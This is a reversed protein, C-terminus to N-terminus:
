DPDELNATSAEVFEVKYDTEETITVKFDPDVVLATQPNDFLEVKLGAEPSILVIFPQLVVAPVIMLNPHTIVQDSIMTPQHVTAPAGIVPPLIPKSISPTKISLTSGVVPMLLNSILTLYKITLLPAAETSHDWSAVQLADTSSGHDYLFVMPNGAQWCGLDAVAEVISKLNPTIATAGASGLDNTTWPVSVATKPRGDISGDVSTFTEAESDDECYWAGEADNKNTETLVLSITANTVFAQPPIKVDQFRIGIHGPGLAGGGVVMHANAIDPSGAGMEHGDDSGQIVSRTLTVEHFVGVPEHVTAAANIVPAIINNVVVTPSFVTAAATIKPVTLVLNILHLPEQPLGPLVIVPMQLTVVASSPRIALLTVIQSEGGTAITYDGPDLSSVAQKSWCMGLGSGTSGPSSENTFQGNPFPYATIARNANDYAELAYWFTDEQGWGTPDLPPVNASTATVTVAAAIEPDTSTHAGSVNVMRWTGRQAVSPTISFTGSESGTARKWFICLSVATEGAPEYATQQLTFWNAPLGSFTGALSGQAVLVLMNNASISGPYAIGTWPNALSDVTGSTSTEENPFAM